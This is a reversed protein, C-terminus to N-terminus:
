IEGVFIEVIDVAGVFFSAFAEAATDGFAVDRRPCHQAGRKAGKGGGAGHAAAQNRESAPLQYRYANYDSNECEGVAGSGIRQRADSKAIDRHKHEEAKHRNAKCIIHLCALNGTIHGSCRCGHPQHPAVHQNHIVVPIHLIITLRALAGSTRKPRRAAAM